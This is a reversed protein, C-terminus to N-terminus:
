KQLAMLERIRASADDLAQQLAVSNNFHAWTEAEAASRRARQYKADYNAAALQDKLREIEHILDVTESGLSQEFLKCRATSVRLAVQLAAIRARSGDPASLTPM